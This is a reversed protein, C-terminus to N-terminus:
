GSRLQSIAAQLDDRSYPKQLYAIRDDSGFRQRLEATGYGSAIVIPLRPYLVRLESVLADGKRDPLGLDVIAFGIDGNLLKAKSMAETASGAIEVRYGLDELHEAAFMQVLLEDEVLLVRADDSPAALVESIKSAVGAYTFPKTILLIGPDLRGDHVIANRAYGSTFLVKLDPRRKRAADALQRGNVGGPLGIDTFLLKIEPHAELAQLAAAAVPAEVVSYGLERLIGTSYSRVDDDDEVVLITQGSTSRPAHVATEVQGISGDDSLLRPIYVKVSTGHGLESYIKVHGGSQKVFGYVQSLGLGTGHGIDKTTFFPEFARTQVDRTMGSGTDTISVVV